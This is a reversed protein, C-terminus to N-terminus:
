VLCWGPIPNAIIPKRPVNCMDNEFLFLQENYKTRHPPLGLSISTDFTMRYGGADM